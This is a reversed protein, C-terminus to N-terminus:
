QIYVQAVIENIYSSFGQRQYEASCGVWHSEEKDKAAVSEVLDIFLAVAVSPRPYEFEIQVIPYYKGYQYSYAMQHVRVRVRCSPSGYDAVCCTEMCGIITFHPEQERINNEREERRPQEAQHCMEPGDGHHKGRKEDVQTCAIAYASVAYRKEIVVVPDIRRQEHEVEKEAEAKPGHRCSGLQKFAQLLRM